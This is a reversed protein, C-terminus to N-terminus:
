FGAGAVLEGRTAEASELKRDHAAIGFNEDASRAPRIGTKDLAPIRLLHFGAFSEGPIRLVEVHHLNVGRKVRNRIDSRYFTPGRLRRSVEREIHLQVLQQRPM